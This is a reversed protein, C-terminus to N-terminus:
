QGTIVISKCWYSLDNLATSQVLYTIKNAIAQSQIELIINCIADTKDSISLSSYQSIYGWMHDVSNILAKIDPPDRLILALEMSLQVFTIENRAITHGYNKYTNYNRAMISYKHAAWLEQTNRPLPIRGQVKDIYKIKLIEYQSAPSDLHYAPWNTDGTNGELPSMHRFGRLKMEEAILDHRIILANTCGKWRLTEPHHSYGKKNNLLISAIGHIERHEGLLSKDNLFGANIDWVRM